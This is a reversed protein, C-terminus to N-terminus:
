REGGGRGEGKRGVEGKGRHGWWREREGIDGGGRGEREREVKVAGRM